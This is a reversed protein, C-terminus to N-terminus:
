VLRDHALQGPQVQWACDPQGSAKPCNPYCSPGGELTLTGGVIKGLGAENLNKLTERTLTLKRVLSKKM